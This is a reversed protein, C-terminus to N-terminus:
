SYQKIITAAILTPLSEDELETSQSRWIKGVSEFIEVFSEDKNEVRLTNGSYEVFLIGVVSFDFTPSIFDMEKITSIALIDHEQYKWHAVMISNDATYVYYDNDLGKMTFTFDVHENPRGLAAFVVNDGVSERQEENFKIKHLELM